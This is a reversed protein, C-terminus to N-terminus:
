AAKLNDLYETDGHLGYAWHPNEAFWPHKAVERAHRDLDEALDSFYTSTGDDSGAPSNSGPPMRDPVTDLRRPVTSAMEEAIDDVYDRIPEVYGEDMGGNVYGNLIEAANERAEAVEARWTRVRVRDAERKREVRCAPCFHSAM